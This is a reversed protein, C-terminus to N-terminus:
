VPWPRERISSNCAWRQRLGFGMTGLAVPILGAVRITSSTISHPGCRTSGVDSTVFADGGTLKHLTEIVFQPKIIESSNKYRMGGGTVRWEDIQKWWAAM